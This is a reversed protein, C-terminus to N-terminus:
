RRRRNFGLLGAGGLVLLAGPAPVERDSGKSNSSPKASSGTAPLLGFDNPVYSAVYPNDWDGHYTKTESGGGGGQAGSDPILALVVNSLGWAPSENSSLGRAFFELRIDDTGSQSAADTRNFRYTLRYVTAPRGDATTFSEVAQYGAEFNSRGVADPYAQKAGPATAFNTETLTPGDVVRM